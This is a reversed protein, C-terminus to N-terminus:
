SAQETRRIFTRLFVSLLFERVGKDLKAFSGGDARATVLRTGYAASINGEHRETGVLVLESTRWADGQKTPRRIWLRVGDSVKEIIKPDFISKFPEDAYTGTSPDWHYNIWWKYGAFDIVPNNNPCYRNAESKKMNNIHSDDDDPVPPCLISTLGPMSDEMIYQKCYDIKSM